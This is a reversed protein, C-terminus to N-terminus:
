LKRSVDIVPRIDGQFLSIEIEQTNENTKESMQEVSPCDPYHFKKTNMNIIYATGITIVTETVSIMETTTISENNESQSISQLNTSNKTESTPQDACGSLVLAISCLLSLAASCLKNRKM